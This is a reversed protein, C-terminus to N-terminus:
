EHGLSQVAPRSVEEIKKGWEFNCSNKFAEKIKLFKGLLTKFDYEKM